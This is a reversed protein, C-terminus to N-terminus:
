SRVQTGPRVSVSVSRGPLHDLVTARLLTAVMSCDSLEAVVCVMIMAPEILVGVVFGDGARTRIADLPGADVGLVLPCALVRRQLERACDIRSNRHSM